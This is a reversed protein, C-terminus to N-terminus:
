IKQYLWGTIIYKNSSIPMKGCHPYCWSAPFLILKGTEPKIKYNGWFVTEGGEEVDNLYWLYTLVRHQNLNFDTNFDDHYIYKGIKKTYKQVLFSHFIINKKYLPKYIDNESLIYDEQHLNDIYIGINKTLEKLLCKHINYWKECNSPMNLDTTDKINKQVGGVTLGEHINEENEFKNIIENCLEKSISNEKIYILSEM